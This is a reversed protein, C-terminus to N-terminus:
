RRRIANRGNSAQKEYDEDSLAFVVSPAPVMSLIMAFIILLSVIKQPFEKIKKIFM